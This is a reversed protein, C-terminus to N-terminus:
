LVNVKLSARTLPPPATLRSKAGLIPKSPASNPNIVATLQHLGRTPRWSFRTRKCQNHNPVYIRKWAIVHGKSPNGDFVMLDVPNRSDSSTCIQSSLNVRVGAPATLNQTFFHDSQVMALPTAGFSVTAPKPHTAVPPAMVTVEGFGENNQGPDLAGPMEPPYNENKIAGDYNLRVYIRYLQGNPASGKTNWIIQAPATGRSPLSIHTTGILQLSGIEQETDPDLKIAYFQVMCNNFTKATSYNYVQASLRRV